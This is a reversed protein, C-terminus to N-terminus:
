NETLSKHWQNLQNQMTTAIDGHADKMDTQESPDKIIDYL